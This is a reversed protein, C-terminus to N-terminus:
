QKGIDVHYFTSRRQLEVTSMTLGLVYTGINVEEDAARTFNRIGIRIQQLPLPIFDVQSCPHNIGATVRRRRCNFDAFPWLRAVSSLRSLSRYAWSDHWRSLTLLSEWDFTTNVHSQLLKYSCHRMRSSPEHNTGIQFQMLPSRSTPRSSTM